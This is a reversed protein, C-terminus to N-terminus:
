HAAFQHGVNRELQHVRRGAGDVVLAFAFQAFGVALLAVVGVVSAVVVVLVNDKLIEGTEAGGLNARREDVIYLFLWVLGVVQM